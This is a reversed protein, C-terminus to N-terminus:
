IAKKGASTKRFALCVSICWVCMYLSKFPDKYEMFILAAIKYETM